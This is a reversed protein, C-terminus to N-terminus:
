LHHSMVHSQPFIAVFSVRLLCTGYSLGLKTRALPQPSRPIHRVFRAKLMLRRDITLCLKFLFMTSSRQLRQGIHMVHGTQTVQQNRGSKVNLDDLSTNHLNQSGNTAVPANIFTFATLLRRLCCLRITSM